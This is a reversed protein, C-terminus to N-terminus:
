FYACTFCIKIVETIPKNQVATGRTKTMQQEAHTLEQKFWNTYIMTSFLNFIDCFQKWYSIFSFKSRTAWSICTEKPCYYKEEWTNEINPFQKTGDTRKWGRQLQLQVPATKRWQQQQCSYTFYVTIKDSMDEYQVSNSDNVIYSTSNDIDM